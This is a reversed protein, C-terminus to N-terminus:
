SYGLKHQFQYWFEVPMDILYTKIPNFFSAASLPFIQLTLNICNKIDSNDTINRYSADKLLQTLIHHMSERLIM